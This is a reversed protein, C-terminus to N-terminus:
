SVTAVLTFAIEGRNIDSWSFYHTAGEVVTKMVFVDKSIATVRMLHNFHGANAVVRITAGIVIDSAHITM